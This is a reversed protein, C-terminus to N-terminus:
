EERALKEVTERNRHLDCLPWHRRGLLAVGATFESCRSVACRYLTSVEETPKSKFELENDLEYERYCACAEGSTAHGDVHYKAQHPRKKEIDATLRLAFGEGLRGDLRAAEEAGPPDQWGACYGIARAPSSGTGATYDWRGDHQRPLSERYTTM